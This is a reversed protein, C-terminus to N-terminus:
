EEAARKRLRRFYDSVILQDAEATGARFTEEFADSAMLEGPIGRLLAGGKQLLWLYDATHVALDLDHTSFLISKGTQDALNRLLRMILIRNPLDLHATPEDLIILPTDQALAKALLTRQQEGDSLENFYRHSYSQLRVQALAATIRDFDESKARGLWDTFPYRGMSVLQFVTLNKVDIRDTLVVSLMRATQRVQSSRITQGMVTVAGTLPPQLGALTRLLTSKGSGNPGLLGIVQGREINLHLGEALVLPANGGRPYGIALDSSELIIMNSESQSM